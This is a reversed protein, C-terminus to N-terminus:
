KEHSIDTGDGLRKVWESSFRYHYKVEKLSKVAIAALRDDTSETLSELMPLHWADFLFQRLIVHAFDLNPQEVLLVNRYEQPYRLMAIDDETKGDGALEAAYQFYNRVQGFLD